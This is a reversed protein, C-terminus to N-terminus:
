PPCAEELYKDINRKCQKLPPRLNPDFNCLAKILEYIEKPAFSPKNMRKGKKVVVNLEEEEVEQIFIFQEHPTGGLTFLEWLLIGLTYLDSEIPITSNIFVEPATWKVPLQPNQCKQYLGNITRRSLGFDGIKVLYDFTLFINRLALDRHVVEKSHLFEMGSAIQYAFSLLDSTTVINEARRQEYFSAWNEDMESPDTEKDANQMKLMKVAVLTNIESRPDTKLRGRYVCGFNGSGLPEEDLEVFTSDIEYVSYASHNDDKMSKRNKEEERNMTTPVLLWYIGYMSGWYGMPPVYKGNLGSYACGCVNTWWRGYEHELCWASTGNTSNLTMFYTGDPFHFSQEAVEANGTFSPSVHLSYNHAEDGINFNTRKEWWSGNPNSSGPNRDGLFDIRLEVNSDDPNIPYIGDTRTGHDFWDQCDTMNTSAITSTTTALNHWPSLVIVVVAVSLVTLTSISCILTKKWGYKKICWLQNCNDDSKTTTQREHRHSTITLSNKSAGKALVPDNRTSSSSAGNINPAKSSQNKREIIAKRKEILTDFIGEQGTETLSKMFCRFAEPGRQWVFEILQNNRIYPTEKAFITHADNRTLIKNGELRNVVELSALNDCLYTLCSQTPNIWDDGNHWFFGYPSGWYDPVYKGNLSSYACGGLTNAWWGGIQKENCFNSTGHSSDITVFNTATSWSMSQGPVEANGTFSSSVRLSYYHAEDEIIFNTRKEWWHGNPNSSGPKRDGWIDIRLEVNSDKNTLVYINDNGLWLNKDLGNNFGVRYESWYKYFFMLNGDVRRQFVTWGGYDTTMDCFVNFSRNGTPNISYIGDTLAGHDFWDKCDTMIRAASTTTSPSLSTTTSPTVSTTTSHSVSTRTSTTTPHTTNPHTTTPHKTTTHKTTPHKTTTHQTTNHMTTTHMTTTHMTTTHMTTNHMTTPHKTTTSSSISTNMECIFCNKAECSQTNWQGTTLAASSVCQQTINPQGPAWNTYGWPSGDVWSFNGPQELSNAGIWFQDCVSVNSTSSVTADINYKEFASGITTLYANHEENICYAEADFWIKKHVGVYYCKHPIVASASWGFFDFLERVPPGTLQDILSLRVIKFLVPSSVGCNKAVAKWDSEVYEGNSKKLLAISCDLLDKAKADPMLQLIKQTNSPATWFFTFAGNTLPALSCFHEENTRLFLIVKRIYDDDLAHEAPHPIDHKVQAKVLPVLLTDVDASRFSLRGYKELVKEDMTLARKGILKEDFREVMEDLSYLRKDDFDRLGSGNRVLYNLVALPLYGADKYFDIYADKQRKSLKKNGAGMLLPLHIFKPPTWGCASYLQVHKVTSAMWESGRLVHSIAMLHDDVINAFHYTPFGDTKMIIFDGEETALDHQCVGYIEDTFEKFNEMAKFRVVSAEGNERRRKVDSADLTRCRNDYKPTERRRTAEKRILDLREESCFCHYAKGEEVLQECKEQYHNLRQSQYYPGYSGGESPGEDRKLGYYNLTREFSGVAGDVLRNRDTDEVRLLFAGKHARAFLYNYLATRLSGLHMAGTPSPAFRVRVHSSSHRVVCSLGFFNSPKLRM